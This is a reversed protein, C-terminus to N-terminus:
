TFIFRNSNLELSSMTKMIYTCFSYGQIGNIILEKVKKM